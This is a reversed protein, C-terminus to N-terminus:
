SMHENLEFIVPM